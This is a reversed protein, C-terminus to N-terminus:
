NAKQIFFITLNQLKKPTKISKGGNYSFFTDIWIRDLNWGMQEADDDIELELPM